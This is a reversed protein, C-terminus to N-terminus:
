ITAMLVTLVVYQLVRCLTSMVYQQCLMNEVSVLRPVRIWGLSHEQSDVLGQQSAGLGQPTVHLTLM